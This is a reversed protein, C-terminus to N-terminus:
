AASEQARTGFLRQGSALAVGGLILALGGLAAATVPEGLLLVGYMVAFGPMLYTVLSMRASGYLRLMRFLLLQGVFTPFLALALLALVGTTGPAETPPDAIAFPLLAVAGFLM